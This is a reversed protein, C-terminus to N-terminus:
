DLLYHTRCLQKGPEAGLPAVQGLHTDSNILSVGSLGRVTLDNISFAL